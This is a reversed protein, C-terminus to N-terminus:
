ESDPLPPNQPPPDLPLPPQVHMQQQYAYSYYYPNFGYYGPYFGYPYQSQQSNTTLNSMNVPPAMQQNGTSTFPSFIYPNQSCHPPSSTITASPKIKKASKNLALPPLDDTDSIDEYFPSVKPLQYRATSKCIKRTLIRSFEDKDQSHPHCPIDSKYYDKLAIVDRMLINTNLYKLKDIARLREKIVSIFSTTTKEEFSSIRALETKLEDMEKDVTKIERDIQKSEKKFEPHKDKQGCDRWDKCPSLSCPKNGRNGDAKHGRLHCNGCRTTKYPGIPDPDVVLIDMDRRRSMLDSRVSEKEKIECLIKQRIKEMGNNNNDFDSVPKSSLTSTSPQDLSEPYIATAAKLNRIAMQIKRKRGLPLPPECFILDLDSEIDMARLASSDRFENELFIEEYKLFEPGLQTLFESISIEM